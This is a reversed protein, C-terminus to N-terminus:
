AVVAEAAKRVAALLAQTSPRAADATRTAAFIARTVPGEAITRLAVGASRRPLALGPLM